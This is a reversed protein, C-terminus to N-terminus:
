PMTAPRAIQRITPDSYCELVDAARYLEYDFKITPTPNKKFLRKAIGRKDVCSSVRADVEHNMKSGDVHELKTLHHSLDEERFGVPLPKDPESSVEFDPIVGIAQLTRASPGYYRSVTLKIYYGDGRKPTLLTQVSAKGFTRRGVVLARDNEQLASAVIESASASGENVLVVIPVDWTNEETAEHVEDRNMSFLSTKFSNKVIVIKGERLFLDSMAIAADLLGGPNNRMDVILGRLAGSKTERGLRTLEEELKAPTSDVFGTVKVHGVDPHHPLLKGKVNPIEIHARKIVVDLDEPESVRRITLKVNTGRPGRIMKVVKILEMGSVDVDDVRLIVDGASLGSHHAPQGEIPSEVLIDDGRKLLVAGIGDFSGDETERMSEDWSRRNVLTSHPDLSFLYGQAASVWVKNMRIAKNKAELGRIHTIVRDFAERSFPIKSWAEKLAQARVKSKTKLARLEDDDLRKKKKDKKDPVFHILFADEPAIKETKGALAEDEDELDRRAEYFSVPLLEMMTGDITNLLAFNAAEAYARDSNFDDDIYYDDIYELVEEFQRKGFTVDLWYDTEKEPDKPKKIDDLKEDGKPAQKKSGALRAPELRSSAVQGLAARRLGPSPSLAEIGGLDVSSASAVLASPADAKPRECAIASSAVFLWTLLFVPLRRSLSHALTNKLMM